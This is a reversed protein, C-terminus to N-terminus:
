GFHKMLHITMAIAPGSMFLAILVFVGSAIWRQRPPLKREFPALIALLVAGCEIAAFLAWVPVLFLAWYFMWFQEM